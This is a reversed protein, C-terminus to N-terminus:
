YIYLFTLFMKSKSFSDDCTKLNDDSEVSEKRGFVFESFLEKFEFNITSM